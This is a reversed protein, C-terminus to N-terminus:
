SGSTPAAVPTAATAAPTAAVFAEMSLQLSTGGGGPASSAGQGLTAQTVLVARPQVEQLQQVFQIVHDTTGTVSLSIPIAYIGSPATAAVQTTSAQATGTPAAAAVPGPASASLQAVTVLTSTGITQLQRLFDPLGDNGPLAAQERALAATYKAVNKNEAALDALRQRLADDQLKASTLQANTKSTQSHQPSVFMLWGALLILAVAVGGGILWLRAARHTIM